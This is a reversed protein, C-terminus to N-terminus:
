APLPIEIYFTTGEDPVSEVWIKGHHALVIQKSIYLGLGTGTASPDAQARYFREFVFPLYEEPIGPGQDTLSFHVHRESSSVRVVLPSGPAYKVANSFLNDLVQVLRTADGSLAPVEAIEAQIQLDPHRLRFRTMVDQAVADLQVRQLRFKATRSQLRASELMNELLLGLHDAEEEIITLFEMQTSEDWNADRRLLSTAYGKIFGLPTRLEHSVTSVFDDQLRMQRQAVEIEARAAVLSRSELLSGATDAFWDALARHLESYEPGGFRVFVLAGETRGAVIVPLGMVYTRQLRDTSPDAGPVREITQNRALVEGALAEGWTVDAESSRGRGAARAYAVELNRRRPDLVYLAVNDHMFDTRMHALLQGFAEKWDSNLRAAARLSHLTALTAPDLKM